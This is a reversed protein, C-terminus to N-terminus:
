LNLKLVKEVKNLTRDISGNNDIINTINRKRINEESFDISDALFRRCLEEYKPNSERQERKLARQLRIGPDVNILIPIIKKQDYYKLYQDYGELTNLGVYNYTNLDMSNNTTFYYWPGYITNYKRSEIIQKEEELKRMEEEKKFYYERGELEGTRIPRTTSMMIKKLSYKEGKTELLRSFITDKGSSSPGMFLIIKGM